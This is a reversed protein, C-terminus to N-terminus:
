KGGGVRAEHRHLHHTHLQFAQYLKEKGYRVEPTFAYSWSENDLLLPIRTGPPADASLRLLSTREKASTWELQKQEQIDGIEEIWPSDSYVKARRWTNKDFPDMGQKMRVWITAEEGPELVGNGNGKGETVTRSVPGGGGQNGRQRFVSLTATRGDLILVEDPAPVIEPIVLVDVNGTVSHWGDYVLKLELRAPAFYGGGAAFRVRMEKSLDASEGAELRPIAATASLLEVTPYESSLTVRVDEMATARPNYIRVPLKVEQGPPLRLKDKATLPLLVPPQAGAGPGAFSIQHGAGDLTVTIRGESDARTTQRSTAGSALNRDLVLYQAQAQYLPATTITIRREPMAPGDPAWRRTTVRFGGQSVDQLCTIGAEGGEAKVRYNWVAFEAYPNSHSWTEPVNDLAPNAFARLHFEFTEGISTAWHRHYEDQRYEFDVEGARAYADRTEEHYQSIYDGSARILRVMTRSHNAVHDKPRWLVRRGKEGAYFEPGPNFSSASGIWDPYRASLYLSMFGGMSLGSTARYRRSTRTRYTGDIHRVLEQFYLGFDYEGGEERIDWPSGGYFGTYDRAVYGDVAVVIADHAAAFAAIKPVTDKGDDYKELTYRDSHGHFYYIVPYPKGGSEYEPPLFIRYRREQGFIKSPHTRDFFPQRAEVASALLLGALLRKM